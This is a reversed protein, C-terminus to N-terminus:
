KTHKFIVKDSRFAWPKFYIEFVKWDEPVEYALVGRMKKGADITGDISRADTSAIAGLSTSGVAEDDAYADFSLISSVALSDGSNNVIEFHAYVHVKGDKATFARVGKSESVETMTVKIGRVDATQNLGYVKPTTSVAKQIATASKGGLLPYGQSMNFAGIALAVIFIWGWIPMRRRPRPEYGDMENMGGNM